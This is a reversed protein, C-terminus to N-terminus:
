NLIAKLALIAATYLSVEATAENIAAKTYGPEDNKWGRCLAQRRGEAEKHDTIAQALAAAYIEEM